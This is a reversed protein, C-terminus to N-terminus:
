QGNRQARLRTLGLRGAAVALRLLSVAAWAAVFDVLFRVIFLIAVGWPPADGEVGIEQFQVFWM